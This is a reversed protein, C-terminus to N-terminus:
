VLHSMIKSTAKLVTPIEATGAKVIASGEGSKMIQDLKKELQFLNTVWGHEGEIKSAIGAREASQWVRAAEESVTNLGTKPDIKIDSRFKIAGQAKAHKMAEVYMAKGLGQGKFRNFLQTTSVSAVGGPLISYTLFGAEEEGKMLTLMHSKTAVPQAKLSWEPDLGRWGSGFQSMIKRTAGSVGKHSLGEVVAESREPALHPGFMQQWLKDEAAEDATNLWNMIRSSSKPFLEEIPFGVWVFPKSKYSFAIAGTVKSAGFNKAVAKMSALVNPM